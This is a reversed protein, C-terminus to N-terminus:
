AKIVLLGSKPHQERSLRRLVELMEEEPIQRIVDGTAAEYITVVDRGSEEDVRFSLGKNISNVFEDMRELIKVRQEENLREREHTQKIATELAQQQSRKLQESVQEHAKESERVSRYGNKSSASKVSENESAFKIGSQSGYPQINSTYSPVEM